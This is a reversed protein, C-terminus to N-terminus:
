RSPRTPSRAWASRSCTTPGSASAWSASSRPRTSWRRSLRLAAEARLGAAGRLRHGDRPPDPHLGRPPRLDLVPAALPAALRRRGPHLLLDRLLPRVDPLDPRGHGAPLRPPHPREHRPDDLRLAAAPPVDDRARAPQPDDGPLEAVRPHEVDRPLHPRPALLRLEPGISFPKTTLPAYGFWGADPPTAWSGARTSSSGASSSSGTALARQAAPLGRGARRDDAPHPLQLVRGVAADGGPVGHQHRAHHLARQLAPRGPAPRRAPGAPAPHPAGRGGRDPLVRARVHRLPPRDAQPRRHHALGRPRPGRRARRRRPRAHVAASAAHGDAMARGSARSTPSSRRGGGPRVAEPGAHAVRAEAVPAHRVWRALNEPTNPLIGGAITRRSGVHTLDPGIGGRRSAACRTAASARARGTSRRARAGGPSGDPPTLPRSRRSRRGRPSRRRRTSSPSTACTPTRPAASSPASATTSARAHRRHARHADPQRPDRRAQRRPRPGLLQPHRRRQRDRPEGAPRGPPPPRERHRDRAGPVPVGVVVPARDGERPARGEAARGADPLDGGVTPFAIFTLIVAPILTWVIELMASGRVQRPIAKPDRERFRFVAVLLLAQVVLFIATDWRLIQLFIRHSTWGFDSRPLLTTAPSDLLGCGALTLGVALAWLGPVRTPRARRLTPESEMHIRDSPTRDVLAPFWGLAFAAPRGARREVRKAVRATSTHGGKVGSM